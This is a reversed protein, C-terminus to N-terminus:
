DAQEPAQGASFGEWRGFWVERLPISRGHAWTGIWLILVDLSSRPASGLDVVWEVRTERRENTILVPGLSALVGRGLQVQGHGGRSGITYWSEITGRLEAAETELLPRRVWLTCALSQWAFDDMWYQNLDEVAFHHAANPGDDGHHWGPPATSLGEAIAATAASVSVNRVLWSLEDATPPADKPQAPQLRLWWEDMPMAPLSRCRLYRWIWQLEDLSPPPDPRPAAGQRTVYEDLWAEEAESLQRFEVSTDLEVPEARTALTPDPAGARIESGPGAATARLFDATEAAVGLGKAAYAILVVCAVFFVGGAPGWFVPSDALVGAGVALASVSVLIVVLLYTRTFRTRADAALKALGAVLNVRV